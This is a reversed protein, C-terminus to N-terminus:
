VKAFTTTCWYKGAVYAVHVAAYTYATTDLDTGGSWIVDTTPWTLDDKTGDTNVIWLDASQGERFNDFTVTVGYSSGSTNSYVFQDATRRDISWASAPNTSTVVAPQGVETWTLSNTGVVDSGVTSRCVWVGGRGIGGESAVVTWGSASDGDYLEAARTPAGSSNVVYLGNEIGSAQATLLIYNGTALTVGDVSQGNAFATSLTGASTSVVRCRVLRLREADAGTPAIGVEKTGSTWDVASGANSSAVIATRTLTSSTKVGRAVEWATGSVGKVVYTILRSTPLAQWGSVAGALTYSGTGTTTTTEKARELYKM